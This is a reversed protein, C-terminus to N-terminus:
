VGVEGVSIRLWREISQERLSYSTNFRVRTEVQTKLETRSVWCVNILCDTAFGTSTWPSIKLWVHDRLFTCGPEKAKWCSFLEWKREFWQLTILFVWTFYSLYHITPLTEQPHLFLSALLTPFHLLKLQLIWPTFSSHCSSPSLSTM